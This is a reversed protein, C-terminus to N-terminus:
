RASMLETYELTARGGTALMARRYVLDCADAGRLTINARRSNHWEAAESLSESEARPKLRPHKAEPLTAQDGTRIEEVRPDMGAM